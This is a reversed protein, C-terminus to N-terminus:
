NLLIHHYHHTPKLERSKEVKLPDRLLKYNDERLRGMIPMKHPLYPSLSNQSFQPQGSTVWPLKMHPLLLFGLKGAPLESNKVM